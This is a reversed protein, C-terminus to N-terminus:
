FCCIFSCLTLFCNIYFSMIWVIKEPQRESLCTKRKSQRFLLNSNYSFTCCFLLSSWYTSQLGPSSSTYAQHHTLKIICLSSSAYAQHHTLKTFPVSAKPWYFEGKLRGSFKKHWYSLKRFTISPSVLEDNMMFKVYVLLREVSSRWLQNQDHYRFLITQSPGIVISQM